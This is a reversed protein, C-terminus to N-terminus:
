ETGMAEPTWQLAGAERPHHPPPGYGGRPVGMPLGRDGYSRTDMPPGRGGPPPGGPGVSMMMGGASNRPLHPPGPGGSPPRPHHGAPPMMQGPPASTPPLSHPSSGPPMGHVPNMGGGGYTRSPDSSQRPPPPPLGSSSRPMHSPPLPGGPGSSSSPPPAVALLHARSPGEHGRPDPPGQISPDHLSNLPSPGRPDPGALPSPGQRAGLPSPGQRSSPLMATPSSVPIAGMPPTTHPHPGPPGYADPPLGNEAMHPLLRDRPSPPMGMSNRPSIPSPRSHAAAPHDRPSQHAPRPSHAPPPPQMHITAAGREPPPPPLTSRHVQTPPPPGSGRIPSVTAVSSSPPASPGATNRPSVTVGGGGGGSRGIVVGGPPLALPLSSGPHSSAPGNAPSKGTPTTQSQLPTSTASPPGTPREPSPRETNVTLSSLALLRARVALLHDRRQVMRDVSDELDLNEEKLQHLSSLLSAIDFHSAQEMLFQSGQEWQRELLEELTQPHQNPKPAEGTSGGQGSGQSATSATRQKKGPVPVGHHGPKTAPDYASHASIESKLVMDM